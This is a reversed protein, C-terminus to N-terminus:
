KTFMKLYMNESTEFTLLVHGRLSQSKKWTLYYSFLAIDAAVFVHAPKSVNSIIRNELLFLQKDPNQM